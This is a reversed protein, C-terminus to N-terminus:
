ISRNATVSVHKMMNSLLKDMGFISYGETGFMSRVTEEFAVQDMDGDFLRECLSLAREYYLASTASPTSPSFTM